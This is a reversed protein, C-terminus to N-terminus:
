NGTESAALDIVRVRELAATFALRTGYVYVYMDWPPPRSGASAAVVRAYSTWSADYLPVHPSFDTIGNKFALPKSFDCSTFASIETTYTCLTLEFAARFAKNCCPDTIVPGARWKVTYIGGSTIFQALHARVIGPHTPRDTPMITSNAPAAPLNHRRRM